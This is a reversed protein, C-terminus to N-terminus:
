RRNSRRKGASLDVLARRKDQYRQEAEHIEADPATARERAARILALAATGSAASLAHDIREVLQALRDNADIFERPQELENANEVPTSLSEELAKREEPTLKPMRKKSRKVKAAEKVAKPGAAVLERQKEEPEDAVAAAASVAVVGARVAEQLEPTGKEIVKQARFVQVRDISAAEAMQAVTPRPNSNCSESDAIRKAEAVVMAMQSPTLHRRHLNKSLVWEVPSGVGGWEETEPECGLRGCALVRNRGDLVKGDCLVVPDRQGHKEIDEALRSLADEDMLPFLDAAPHTEYKGLLLAM